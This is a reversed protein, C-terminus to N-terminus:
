RTKAPGSAATGVRPWWVPPANKGYDGFRHHGASREQNRPVSISKSEVRMAPECVRTSATSAAPPISAQGTPGSSESAKSPFRIL